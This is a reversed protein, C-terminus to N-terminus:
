IPTIPLTLVSSEGTTSDVYRINATFTSNAQQVSISPIPSPAVADELEMQARITGEIRQPAAPNGLFLPLGAGYDPQFIYEGQSTMLRRLVREVGFQTGESLALDGTSDTQLDTGYFHALDAM